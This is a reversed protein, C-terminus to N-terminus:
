PRLADTQELDARDALAHATSEGSVGDAPVQDVAVVGM